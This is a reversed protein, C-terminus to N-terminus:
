LLCYCYIFWKVTLVFFCVMEVKSRKQYVLKTHNRCTHINAIIRINFIEMVTSFWIRKLPQRSTLFRQSNKSYLVIPEIRYCNKLCAVYFIKCIFSANQETQIKTNSKLKKKIVKPLQLSYSAIDFTYEREERSMGDKWFCLVRQYDSCIAPSKTVSPYGWSSTIFSRSGDAARKAKCM